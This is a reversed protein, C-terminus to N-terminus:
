GKEMLMLTYSILEQLNKIKDVDLMNDEFEIDFEDEIKIVLKVFNISDIGMERFPTTENVYSLGFEETFQLFINVINDRSDMIVM